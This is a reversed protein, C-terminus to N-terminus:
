CVLKIEFSNFLLRPFEFLNSQHADNLNYTDTPDIVLSCLKIIFFALLIILPNKFKSIEGITM